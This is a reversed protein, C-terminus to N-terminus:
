TQTPARRRRYKNWPWWGGIRVAKWIVLRKWGPCRYGTYISENLRDDAQRRTIPEVHFYLRAVDLRDAEDAMAYNLLGHRVSGESMGHFPRLRYARWYDEDHTIYSAAYERPDALWHVVPPISGLDTKMGDPPCTYSGDAGRFFFLNGVSQRLRFYITGPVPQLDPELTTFYGPQPNGM